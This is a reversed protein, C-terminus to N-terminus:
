LVHTHYIEYPPHAQSQALNDIESFHGSGNCDTHVPGRTKGARQDLERLHTTHMKAVIIM